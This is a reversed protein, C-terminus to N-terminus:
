LRIQMKASAKFDYLTDSHIRSPDPTVVPGGLCSCVDNWFRIAVPHGKQVPLELLRVAKAPLESSDSREECLFGYFSIKALVIRSFFDQQNAWRRLVELRAANSESKNPETSQLLEIYALRAEVMPVSSKIKRFCAEATGLDKTVLPSQEGLCTMGWYYLFETSYLETHDKTVEAATLHGQLESITRILPPMETWTNSYLFKAVEIDGRLLQQGLYSFVLSTRSIDTM